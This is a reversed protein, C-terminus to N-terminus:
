PNFVLVWTINNRLLLFMVFCFKIDSVYVSAKHAFKGRSFKKDKKNTHIVNIKNIGM